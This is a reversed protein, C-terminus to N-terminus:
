SMSVTSRDLVILADSYSVSDKMKESADSLIKGVENLLYVSVADDYCREFHEESVEARYIITYGDSVDTILRIVEGTEGESLSFVSDTIESYYLSDLSYRGILEGNSIDTAGSISFNIVYNVVDRESTKSAITDRIEQARDETFADKSLFARIVRRVSDSNFYFDRVDEETYKIEGFTQGGKDIDGIYYTTLEDKALSYRLLLEQTSYNLNM